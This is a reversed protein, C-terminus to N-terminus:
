LYTFLLKEVAGSIKLGSSFHLKKEFADGSKVTQKKPAFM